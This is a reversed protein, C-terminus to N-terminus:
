EQRAVADLLIMGLINRAQGISIQRFNDTPQTLGIFRFTERERDTLRPSDAEISCWAVWGEVITEALKQHDGQELQERTLVARAMQNTYALLSAAIIEPIARPGGPSRTFALIKGM